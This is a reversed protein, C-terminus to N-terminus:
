ATGGRMQIPISVRIIFGTNEEHDIQSARESDLVGLADANFPEAGFAIDDATRGDFRNDSDRLRPRSVSVVELTGGLTVARERMGMIGHGTQADESAGDAGRGDDEVTLHVASDDSALTINVHQAQAHRVINTAAERVIRFLAVDLYTPVSQRQYDDTDLRVEIGATQLYSVIESLRDTTATPATEVQDPERLIEVMSRLEALADKATIRVVHIAAKAETPDSNLLREAVAAQLTVASLSHATIDHVERAIRVREEEVRRRALEEQAREAEQVRMESVTLSVQRSRLADGLAAAAAVLAVNQCRVLFSLAVTAASMPVFLVAAVSISLYIATERRTHHTALTYLAVMHAAPSVIQGVNALQTILYLLLTIVWVARTFNRRFLLPLACLLLLAITGPDVAPHIVGSMKQFDEALVLYYTSTIM